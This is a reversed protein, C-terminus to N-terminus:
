EGAEFPKLRQNERLGETVVCEMANCPGAKVEVARGSYLMALPKSGSFDLAARPVLLVNELRETQVEAKVSMGSRMKGPYGKGVDVVVSFARRAPSDPVEQAVEAVDKVTGDLPVEPFADLRCVAKMGPRVRGEDVDYLRAVVEVHSMDPVHLITTGVFVTDGVQLKRNYWPHQAVDIVGDCPALVTMARLAEDAFNLDRRAKEMTLKAVSADASAAEEAAALESKAKTEEALARALALQNAEYDRRPLLEAPVAAEMRAKEVAVEQQAVKIRAAELSSANLAKQKEHDNFAKDAALRKDEADGAVATLDLELIKQGKKVKSGDPAMWRIQTRWQPLRPVIVDVSHVARLEGTLVLRGQFTGRRVELAGGKSGCAFLFILLCAGLAPSLKKPAAEFRPLMGTMIAKWEAM